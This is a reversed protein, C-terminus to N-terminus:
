EVHFMGFSGDRAPRHEGVGVAFGAVNFLNALQEASIARKNLRILLTTSWTRFLGRFRIDATGMGVRVMAKYNEPPEPHEIKALEGIVHFAGRAYVKTMDEIFSCADVAAAKFGITPFGFEAADVDKQTPKEPMATMWHMSRCYDMFPDKVERGAKAVKMQKDLMMQQCKEDFRHMVLPSDGVLKLKIIEIDISPLVIQKKDSGKGAKVPETTVDTTVAAKKGARTGNLTATAM